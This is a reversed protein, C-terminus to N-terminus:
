TYWVAPSPPWPFRRSAPARGGPFAHRQRTVRRHQRGPLISRRSVPTSSLMEHPFESRNVDDRCAPRLGIQQRDPQKSPPLGRPPRCPPPSGAPPRAGPRRTGAPLALVVLRRLGVGAGVARHDREAAEAAALVEGGGLEGAPEEPGRLVGALVPRPPQGHGQRGMGLGGAQRGGAADQAGQREGAVPEVAVQALGLLGAAISRNATTGGAPSSAAKRAARGPTSATARRWRRRGRGRWSAPWRPWGRRSPPARGRARRSGRGPASRAPRRRAARAAAHAAQEGDAGAGGCSGRM